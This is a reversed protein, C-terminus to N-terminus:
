VTPPAADGSKDATCRPRWILLFFTLILAAVSVWVGIVFSQPEFSWRVVHRGAPLQVTRMGLDNTGSEASEGNVSVIWGPWDLDRLTLTGAASMEVEIEVVNCNKARITPRSPSEPETVVRGGAGAIRYLTTSTPTFWVTGFYPDPASFVEELGDAPRGLPAATLIHTVGLRKLDMLQQEGPFTAGSDEPGTPQRFLSTFYQEPGLGLYTPLGNVRMVSAVNPMPALVRFEPRESLSRRVWSDNLRAYPSTEVIASDRIALNSQELDWVTVGILLAIILGVGRESTKLLQTLSLGALVAGAMAAVITYRGPGIFFGFGPLRKTLPVLWGTSYVVGAIGLLMWIRTAAQRRVRRGLSCVVLVFPAIGWYLHAEVSVTDASIAGWSDRYDRSQKMEPTHWYLWGTALQSAYLPPMHGYAPDHRADVGQRQSQERLEWTPILQVAGLLVGLAIAVPTLLAPKWRSGSQARLFCRGAAFGCCTLQTIFALNFHGALLHLGFALGLVATRRFSPVRLLRETLWLCLPMWVAGVASWELSVRAPFWGYVFITAGLLGAAFSVGQSRAFRWAFVFGLVYHLLLNTHFAAHVDMVRYLVQTAPYFVAAQSEALLPYGHGTWPHWLPVVGDEFARAVVVKQPLFYPYPDGGFLGGGAVIDRWVWAAILLATALAAAWERWGVREDPLLPADSEEAESM